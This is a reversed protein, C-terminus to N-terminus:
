KATTINYYENLLQKLSYKVATGFQQPEFPEAGNQDLGDNKIKSMRASQREPSLALTGL